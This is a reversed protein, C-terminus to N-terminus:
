GRLQVDDYEYIIQWQCVCGHHAPMDPVYGTPAYRRLHRPACIPCPGTKSLDPRTIWQLWQVNYSASTIVLADNVLKFTFNQCFSMLRQELGEPTLFFADTTIIRGKSTKKFKDANALLLAILLAKTYNKKPKDRLQYRDALLYLEDESLDELDDETIAEHLLTMLHRAHEEESTCGCSTM